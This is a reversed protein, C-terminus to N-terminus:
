ASMGGDILISQGTIYSADDSMLFLALSAVDEITGIRRLPISKKIKKRQDDPILQLMETDIYGPSITNVSVNFRALELSLSKTFGTLAAKSSSYNTQGLNGKHGSISSINIISAKDLEMMKSVFSRTVNFVSNLNTDIVSNWEDSSMRAFLADKTIGANNILGVPVIDDEFLTDALKQVSKLNTVDCRYGKVSLESANAEKEIALASDVSNIYTFIVSYGENSFAHVLGKGIGRTGGTILVYKKNKM